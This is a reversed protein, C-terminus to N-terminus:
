PAPILAPRSTGPMVRAIVVVGGATVTVSVEGLTAVNSLGLSSLPSLAAGELPYEGGEVSIGRAEGIAFVSFTTGPEMAVRLKPRSPADVAWAVFSPEQVEAAVRAGARVLTGVSALTHDLRGGFCACLTVRSAGQAIAAAVALDLDSEDKHEPHEVVRVGAARLRAPAGPESSDFDGIALHPVRGLSVCWEAGADAAIVLDARELLGAYFATGAAEPSAGVVLADMM